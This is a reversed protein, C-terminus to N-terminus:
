ECKGADKVPFLRVAAKGVIDSTSIVGVDPSRSDLSVLRNDGMCFVENSGLVYSMSGGNPYTQGPDKIYDESLLEGNLYVNGRGDFELTDGEIAIVRKILLKKGELSAKLVVIDGREPTRSGSYARKNIILYDGDHYNPLMSDERIITPQIVTLLLMALVVAALVPGALEKILKMLM